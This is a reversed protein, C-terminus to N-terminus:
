EGPTFVAIHHQWGTAYDVLGRANCAENRSELAEVVQLFAEGQHLVVEFAREDSAYECLGEYGADAAAPTTDLVAVRQYGKAIRVRQEQVSGAMVAGSGAEDDALVEKIGKQVIIPEIITNRDYEGVGLAWLGGQDDRIVVTFNSCCIETAYRSEDPLAVVRPVLQDEYVAVKQKGSRILAQQEQKNYNRGGKKKESKLDTSMGKGWILVKGCDTLVVTHNFGASVQAATYEEKDKGESNKLLRVRTPTSGSEVDGNGLQGRNGKGWVWVEGNELRTVCHQLGTDVEKVKTPLKVRTPDFVHIGQANKGGEVEKQNVGCQGWRNLGFSYLEGSHTLAMTLGASCSVEKINEMGPILMPVTYLGEDSSSDGFWNTFRGVFRGLNQNVSKLKNIQMLNSFDYPRGFVLLRDDSTIAASHGWGASVSKVGSVTPPLPVKKFQKADLLADGHGLAGFVGTGKTYLQLNHEPGHQLVHLCRLHAHAYHDPLAQMMRAVRQAHVGLIMEIELPLDFM